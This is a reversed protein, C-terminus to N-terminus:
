HSMVFWANLYNAFRLPLTPLWMSDAMQQQTKFSLEFLMLVPVFTLFGLISLITINLWDRNKKGARSGPFAALKVPNDQVTKEIFSM